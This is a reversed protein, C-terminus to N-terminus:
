STWGRRKVENRFYDVVEGFMKNNEVSSTMHCCVSREVMKWTLPCNVNWTKISWKYRDTMKVEPRDKWLAWPNAPTWYKKPPYISITWDLYEQIAEQKCEAMMWANCLIKYEKKSFGIVVKENMFEIPNRFWLTDLDSYIGGEEHLIQLRVVDKVHSIRKGNGQYGALHTEWIVPVGNISEPMKRYRTEVGELQLTLDDTHLVIKVTTNMVASRIGLLEDETPKQGCSFWIFHLVPPIM